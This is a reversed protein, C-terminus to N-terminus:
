VHRSFSSSQRSPSAKEFIDRALSITTVLLHQSFLHLLVVWDHLQLRTGNRASFDFGVQMRAQMPIHGLAATGHQMSPRLTLHATSDTM